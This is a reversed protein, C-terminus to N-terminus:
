FFPGFIIKFQSYNKIIIKKAGPKEIYGEEVFNRLIRNFTERSLGVYSALEQQNPINIIVVNEETFTGQDQAWRLLASAVKGRANLLSLGKIQSDSNRIRSALEKLMEIAVLPNDKLLTYFDEERVALVAAKEEAIADTSRSLGDLVAMDGFFNGPCLIAIVVEKGERNLRSIKIRGELILYFYDALESELFVVEGRKYQRIDGVNFLYNLAADNLLHYLSDQAIKKYAQINM